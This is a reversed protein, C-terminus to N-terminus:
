EGVWLKGLVDSVLVSAAENPLPRQGLLAHLFDIPDAFGFASQMHDLSMRKKLLIAFVAARGSLSLSPEHGGDSEFFPPGAKVEGPAIQDLQLRIAERVFKSTGKEGVIEYVRKLDDPDLNLHTRTVNLPPRGMRHM